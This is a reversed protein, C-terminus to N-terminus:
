QVCYVRFNEDTPGLAGEVIADKLLDDETAQKRFPEVWEHWPFGLWEPKMEELPPNTVLITGKKLNKRIAGWLERQEEEPVFYEFANNFFVVDTRKLLVEQERLDGQRISVRGQMGNREVVKETLTALAENIELGVVSTSPPTLAFIAFLINGLGSGIDLM